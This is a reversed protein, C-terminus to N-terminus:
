QVSEKIIRMFRKLLGNAQDTNCIASQLAKIDHGDKVLTGTQEKVYGNMIDATFEPHFQVGWANTGIRYAHHAEFSNQALLKAGTPLRSVTQAHTTHAMFMDPLAGLLRDKKGEPTLTISVTGIERGGPHYAVLGGM